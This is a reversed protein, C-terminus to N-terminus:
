PLRYREQMRRISQVLGDAMRRQFDPDTLM